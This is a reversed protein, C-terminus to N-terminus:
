KYEFPSIPVVYITVGNHEKDFYWYEVERVLFNIFEKDPKNTLENIRKTERQIRLVEGQRPIYPTTMDKVVLYNCNDYDSWGGTGNKVMVDYTYNMM